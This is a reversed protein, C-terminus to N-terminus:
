DTGTANTDVIRKVLLNVFEFFLASLGVALPVYFFAMSVELTALTQGKGIVWIFSVAHPILRALIYMCFLIILTSVLKQAWDPFKEVILVLKPHERRRFPVSAGLFAMSIMLMTALEETFPFPHNFAYRSTTGVFVLVVIVSYLVICVLILVRDTYGTVKDLYLSVRRLMEM